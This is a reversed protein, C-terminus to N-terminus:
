PISLNIRRLHSTQPLIHAVSSSARDDPLRLKFEQLAPIPYQFFYLLHLSHDLPGDLSLQRWRQMALGNLGVLEAIPEHFLKSALSLVHKSPMNNRFTLIPRKKPNSTSYMWSGGGLSCKLGSM